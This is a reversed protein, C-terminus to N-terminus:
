NILLGIKIPAQPGYTEDMNKWVTVPSQEINGTIDAVRASSVPLVRAQHLMSTRLISDTESIGHFIDFALQENLKRGLIVEVGFTRM